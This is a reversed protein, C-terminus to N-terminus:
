RVVVKDGAKLGSLIEAETANEIGITVDVEKKSENEDLITVYRREGDSKILNKSVVVANEHVEKIYSIDAVTGITLFDPLDSKFEFFYSQTDASLAPYEDYLGETTQSPTKSVYGAFEEGNVTLVVDAGLPFSKMNSSPSYQIFMNQPDIIKVVTKYATVTSGPRMAETYCVQGSMGAYLRSNGLQREYEELTNQEMEYDLQAAASSGATLAAKQVILKQQEYLYPLNGTDLEALLEGEEVFQGATVYIKKLSGGSEPFSAEYESKSVVYGAAMTKNEITKVRATYTSYAVEEVPVTPPSLLEEEAPFFYCGTMSLAIGLAAASLLIRKKM